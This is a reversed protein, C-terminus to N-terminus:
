PKGREVRGSASCPSSFLCAGTEGSGVCIKRPPVWPRAGEDEVLFYFRDSLGSRRSFFIFVGPLGNQRSFFFCDSLNCSGSLFVFIGSLDSQRSSVCGM